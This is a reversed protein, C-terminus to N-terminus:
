KKCFFYNNKFDDIEDLYKLLYVCEKNMEIKQDMSLDESFIYTVYLDVISKETMSYHFYELELM